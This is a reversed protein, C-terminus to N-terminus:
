YSDPSGLHSMRLVAESMKQFRAEVEHGSMPVHGVNKEGILLWALSNARALDHIESTDQYSVVADATGHILTVPVQGTNVLHEPAFPNMPAQKSHHPFRTEFWKQYLEDAAVARRAHARLDVMPSCALVGAVQPWIQASLLALSAGFSGGMLIVQERSLSLESLFSGCCELDRALSASWDNWPRIQHDWGFGISGSYNVGVVLIGLAVLFRYLGDYRMEDRELSEPGGHFNIVCAVPETDPHFVIAPLQRSLTECTVRGSQSPGIVGPATARAKINAIDFWHWRSGGLTSYSYAGIATTTVIQILIRGDRLLVTEDSWASNDLGRLKLAEQCGKTTVSAIGIRGGPLLILRAESVREVTRSRKHIRARTLDIVLFEQGHKSSTLVLGMDALVGCWRGVVDLEAGESEGRIRLSTEEPGNDWAWVTTIGAYYYLLQAMPPPEPGESLSDGELVLVRRSGDESAMMLISSLQRTVSVGEAIDEIFWEDQGPSIWTHRREIKQGNMWLETVAMEHQNYRASVFVGPLEHFYLAEIEELNQHFSEVATVASSVSLYGDEIAALLPADNVWGVVQRNRESAFKRANHLHEEYM